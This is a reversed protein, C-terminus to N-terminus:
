KTFLGILRDEQVALWESLAPPIINNFYAMQAELMLVGMLIFLAGSVLQTTHLRVTIRKEASSTLVWLAAGLVTLALLGIEVGLSLELGGLFSFNRQAYEFAAVLIRWIALAWVLAVVFVHTDWDWGKGKLARWFLSQRSMRGFFTSVILLPLGLGITYIFLLMMGLWVSTTQAALTLVSGLIPGVCSSWGVAFTLGFLYSGGVTASFQQGSASGGVLLLLQQNQLLVRGVAFGVAGLISFTTALGLMFALTNTAIRQRESQFAFAFYATLVPLTCPSVFSLLGAFFALVALVVFPQRQIGFSFENTTSSQTVTGLILFLVVLFVSVLLLWQGTSLTRLRGPLSTSKLM